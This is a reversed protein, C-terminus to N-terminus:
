GSRLRLAHSSSTSPDRPHRNCRHRLLSDERFRKGRTMRLPTPACAVACDFFGHMQKMAPVFQVTSPDRPHRNYSHQKLSNERSFAVVIELIRSLHRGFGGAQASSDHGIQNTEDDLAPRTFIKVCGDPTRPEHEVGRSEETEQKGTAYRDPFGIVAFPQRGVMETVRLTYYEIKMAASVDTARRARVAGNGCIQGSKGTLTNEGHIIPKSRFM